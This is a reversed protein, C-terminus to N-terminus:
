ELYSMLLLMAAVLLGIIVLITFIGPGQGPQINNQVVPALQPEEPFPAESVPPQKIGLSLIPCGFSDLHYKADNGVMWAWQQWTVASRLKYEKSGLEFVDGTMGYKILDRGYNCQICVCEPAHTASM